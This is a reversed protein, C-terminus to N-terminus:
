LTKMSLILWGLSDGVSGNTKGVAVLTCPNHHAVHQGNMKSFVHMFREIQFSEKWVRVDGLDVLINPYNGLCNSSSPYRRRALNIGGSPKRTESARKDSAKAATRSKSGHPFSVARFFQCPLHSIWGNQVPSIYMQYMATTKKEM